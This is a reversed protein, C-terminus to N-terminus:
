DWQFSASRRIDRSSSGVQITYTGKELIWDNAKEDWYALEQVPIELQLEQSSNASLLSTKAFAKLERKPRDIQSDKKEVYVQVVEKGAVGGKNTIAITMQITDDQVEMEPLGYDFETYSLGYGFPYSVPLNKKDFHRYGVYIGEEYRTYDENKVWDSESRGEPPFIMGVVMDSMSIKKPNKPFNLDSAHDELVIPFSVPLKGSPNVKGSLIDAISHGGEQGGQWALVIGDPQTNWSATEIVGGINLIVVVKKGASHFEKCVRAIMNKEVETLNYDGPKAARDVLEGSNRGLTIVGLDSTTAIEAIQAKTYTIEPPTYPTFIAEFEAPKEFAERYKEKHQEFRKKAAQNIQYGADSLGEELSVTYAENVDGSGTGGAIFDYSTIGFLAINKSPEFPLVNQNKLLVMGEAAATRALIAHKKLNPSNNRTYNQFKRTQFVLTLIRRAARDVDAETLVEEQYAERLAEWQRLTGPELLDNGAQIQAVADKGGFWDTMVLGEFGWDNRLIQTLLRENESTYVGNVKNYSTMISWPHARHVIHEFGKLYIERLARESVRADNFIRHTEQNNAVFHKVTAGIGISQIGNVIAAGIYGSLMPDESFYEFNRGCLPHRHINVGPGLIVDVGYDRAEEGMASGIEYILAENWSSSLLSAIPFSTCYFDKEQGKRKSQIRLGAPGDSLNVSPIGLRPTPVITGVAGAVGGPDSQGLGSAMGSGKLLHIKEEITMQSLVDAVRMALPQRDDEYVDLQGNANRDLFSYDESQLEKFVLAAKYDSEFNLFTTDFYRYGVYGLLVGMIVVFGLAKLILNVKRM